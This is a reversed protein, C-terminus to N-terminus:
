STEGMEGVDTLQDILLEAFGTAPDTKRAFRWEPLMAVVLEATTRVMSGSCLHGGIVAGTSDAVASHLHGGDPTLSGALSIIELDGRLTTPEELGALRLRAVSLSGIGSIVCGAQESRQAMWTELTRRLDEGPMLRLPVVKM